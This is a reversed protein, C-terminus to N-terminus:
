IQDLDGEKPPKSLHNFSNMADTIGHTIFREVADAAKPVLRDVDIREDETFKGLVYNAASGSAPPRGVGLKIRAFEDTQLHRIIDAVGRQGGASGKRRLRLRGVPLDLDDTVVLLNELEVKYFDFAKRVSRGSRNMYTQPCLVLSKNGAVAIEITEAEFKVRVNGLAHRRGLEAAVEFGINHRTGLYQKGPNGLGVILKM